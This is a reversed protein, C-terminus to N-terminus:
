INTIFKIEIVYWVFTHITGWVPKVCYQSIRCFGIIIKTKKKKKAYHIILLLVSVADEWNQRNYTNTTKSTAM